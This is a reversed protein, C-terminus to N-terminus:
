RGRTIQQLNARHFGDDGCHESRARACPRTWGDPVARRCAKIPADPQAVLTPAPDDRKSVSNRLPATVPVNRARPAKRPITISAITTMGANPTAASGNHTRIAATRPITTAKSTRVKRIPGVRQISNSVAPTVM